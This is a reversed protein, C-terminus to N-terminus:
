FKATLTFGYTRPPALNANTNFATAALQEYIIANTLNRGWLKLGLGNRFDLHLTAALVGFAPQRLINDPQTYYGSDYSYSVNLGAHGFATPVHYDASINATVDPTQPLRNGTASGIETDVGGPVQLAIIANPFDTFRDNLVTVGGSLTLNTALLAEFDADLGYIRAKAGNYITTVSGTYKSVQLDRYNYYFAAIDIRLRHDLLDSKAGLEYADLTEPQFAPDTPASVNFGGSKFGRNYSAYVMLDPLLHHDLSIRWTPESFRKSQDPIPPLQVGTPGGAIDITQSANLKHEETSSRIGLTLNTLDTLPATAQSYVAFAQTRQTGFFDTAALPGAPTPAQLVGYFNVRNPDFSSNDGFYYFGAIWKITASEPSALQVEESLQQDSQITNISAGPTATADVDAVIHLNSERYASISTLQAFGLQQEIRAMIGGGKFAGFPQTDEDVDWPSPLAPYPFITSTGPALRAPNYMSGRYQEYDAAIRLKTDDNPTFLVSSRVATDDLMRYVDEGNFLNTGYGQGQTTIHGAFDAAVGRGLGGTVYADATATQYNGYSVDIEGGPTASPEHTIVQILGGTANRGFLTGQPGKLVDIRDINNLSFLSAPASAMYVGDIYMAVGGEYGPGVVNNGVGRIRPMAYGALNTLTLGPVALGLEETNTVGQNILQEASVSAIAIPVDQLNESRKQATVVIEPLGVDKVAAPAASDQGYAHGSTLAAGGFAILAAIRTLFGRHNMKGM